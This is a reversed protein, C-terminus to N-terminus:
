GGRGGCRGDEGHLSQGELDGVVVDEDEEVARQERVGREGLWGNALGAEPFGRNSGGEQGGGTEIGSALGM